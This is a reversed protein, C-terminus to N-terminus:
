PTAPDTELTTPDPHLLSDVLGTPLPATLLIRKGPRELKATSLWALREPKKRAIADLVDRLTVESFAAADEDSYSLTARVQKGPGSPLEFTLADLRRGVAALAGTSQLARVRAVLSPGAIRLVALAGSEFHIPPRALPRAFVSRARERADGSAIVWTRGALEFLSAPIPREARASAPTETRVLERVRGQPGPEWLAHGDADVLAAPDVNAPVGRVVVVVEGPGDPSDPRMGIVIEESDEMADLARTEVVVRSRERALEIVRRLLPGYLKDSRFAMPFVVALLEPTTDFLDEWRPEADRVQAAPSATAPTSGACGSTAPIATVTVCVWTALAQWRCALPRRM